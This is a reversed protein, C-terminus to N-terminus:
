RKEEYHRLKRSQEKLTMRLDRNADVLGSVQLNLTKIEEKLEKITDGVSAKPKKVEKILSKVKNL